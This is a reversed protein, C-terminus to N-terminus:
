AIQLILLAVFSKTISGLQFLLNPGVPPKLGPNSFGYSAARV